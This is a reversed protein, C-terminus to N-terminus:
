DKDNETQNDEPQSLLTDIRNIDRPFLTAEKVNKVGCFKATLRELGMGIGGHPPVGYKFAQLYFDFKECAWTIALAEKEIQGYRQEAETMKRSAYAVPQWEGKEEQLLAAGLTHKSADSTVRHKKQIDFLTLVPASSIINKVKEFSDQQHAKWLWAARDRDLERLPLQAESLMPSFRSLYNVMALFRRLGKRDVPPPMSKIAQEKEPDVRIGKESVIHGLFKM